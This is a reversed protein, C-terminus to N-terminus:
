PILVSVRQYMPFIRDSWPLPESPTEAIRQGFRVGCWTVISIPMDIFRDGTLKHSRALYHFLLNSWSWKPTLCVVLSHDKFGLVHFSTVGSVDILINPRNTDIRITSRSKTNNVEFNILAVFVIVHYIICAIRAVGFVRVYVFCCRASTWTVFSAFSRFTEVIAFVIARAINENLSLVSRDLWM